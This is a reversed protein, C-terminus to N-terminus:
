AEIKPETGGALVVDNDAAPTKWNFEAPNNCIHIDTAPDLTWSHILPHQQSARQNNFASSFIAYAEHPSHDALPDGADIEISDSDSAKGHKSGDRTRHKKFRRNKERIKSLVGRSDRAEFDAIKKAKEPDGVFGRQQLATDIYPCQGQFHSDGCLCPKTPKNVDDISRKKNNYPSPQGNM